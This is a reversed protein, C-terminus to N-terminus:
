AKGKLSAMLFKLVRRNSLPEVDKYFFHKKRRESRHPIECDVGRQPEIEENACQETDPESIM